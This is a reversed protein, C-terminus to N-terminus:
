LKDILVHDGRELTTAMSDSGVTVPEVVFIGLLAIVLVVGVGVAWRAVVHRRNATDDLGAAGAQAPEDVDRGTSHSLRPRGSRVVGLRHRRGRALRQSGM